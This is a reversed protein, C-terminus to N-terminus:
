SRGRTVHPCRAFANTDLNRWLVSSQALRFDEPPSIRHVSFPSDSARYASSPSGFLVTTRSYIVSKGSSFTNAASISFVLRAISLLLPYCYPPQVNNEFINVSLQRMPLLSFQLMDAVMQLRFQLFRGNIEPPLLTM